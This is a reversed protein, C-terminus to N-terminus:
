KVNMLQVFVCLCSHIGSPPSRPLEFDKRCVACLLQSL